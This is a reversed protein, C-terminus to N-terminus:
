SKKAGADPDTVTVVGAKRKRLAAGAPCWTRTRQFSYGAEYLVEWITYTSVAPLGDEARRLAARL